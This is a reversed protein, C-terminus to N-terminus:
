NDQRWEPAEPRGFLEELTAFMKEPNDFSLVTVGYEDDPTVRCFDCVGQEMDWDNDLDTLEGCSPCVAWRIDCEECLFVEEAVLDQPCVTLDSGCEPCAHAFM